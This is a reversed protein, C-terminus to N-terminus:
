SRLMLPRLSVLWHSAAKTTPKTNTTNSTRWARRRPPASAPSPRVSQDTVRRRMPSVKTKRSPNHVVMLVCWIEHGNPEMDTFKFGWKEILEKEKKTIGLDEM